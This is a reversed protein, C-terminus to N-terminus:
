LKSHVWYKAGTNSNISTGSADMVKAFATAFDKVFLEKADDCSYEEAIARLVSNSGFVLDVSTAKWRLSASARDKGEYLNDRRGQVM